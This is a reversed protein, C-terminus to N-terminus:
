GAARELNNDCKQLAKTAQHPAFGMACLMQVGDQSVSFASKKPQEIVLPNKIDSDDMHTLVLEM